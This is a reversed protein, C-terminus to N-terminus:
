RRISLVGSEKTVVLREGNRPTVRARPADRGSKLVLEEPGCNTHIRAAGAELTFAEGGIEYRVRDRAANTVLFEISAAKPRGFMQVAYYRGSKESKAVAVATDIAAPALMNKRHGPSRKWGEFYQRALDATRFDESSYQYSINEAVLCYDYGHRTAREAPEKGDAQHGYRDNRAMYEAFYRAAAELRADRQLAQLGQERRFENTREIITSEVRALDPKASQAGVGAPAILIATALAASALSRLLGSDM